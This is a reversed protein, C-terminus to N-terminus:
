ACAGEHRAQTTPLALHAAATLLSGASHYRNALTYSVIAQVDRENARPLHVLEPAIDALQVIHPAGGEPPHIAARTLDVHGSTLVPSIPVISGDRLILPWQQYLPTSGTHTHTMDTPHTSDTTDAAARRKADHGPAAGRLRKPPLWRHAHILHLARARLLRMRWHCTSCRTLCWGAWCDPAAMRLADLAAQLDAATPEPTRLSLTPQM